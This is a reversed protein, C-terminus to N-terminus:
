EARDSRSRKLLHRACIIKHIPKNLAIRCAIHFGKETLETMGTAFNWIILKDSVDSLPRLSSAAYKQLFRQKGNLLQLLFQKQKKTLMYVSM